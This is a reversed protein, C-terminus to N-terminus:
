KRRYVPDNLGNVFDGIAVARRLAFGLPDAAGLQQGIGIAHGSAAHLLQKLGVGVHQGRLIVRPHVESLPKEVVECNCNCRRGFNCGGGGGGIHSANFNADRVIRCEIRDLRRTKRMGPERVTGTANDISSRANVHGVASKKLGQM